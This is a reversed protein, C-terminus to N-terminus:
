AFMEGAGLRETRAEDVLCYTHGAACLIRNVWFLVDTGDFDAGEMHHGGQTEAPAGCELCDTTM